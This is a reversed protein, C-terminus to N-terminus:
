KELPKVAILLTQDYKVVWVNKDPFTTRARKYDTPNYPAILKYQDNTKIMEIEFGVLRAMEAKANEFVSYAGFQIFRGSVLRNSATYRTRDLETYDVTTTWKLRHDDVPNIVYCKLKLVKKGQLKVFEYSQVAMSDYKEMYSITSGTLSKTDTEFKFNFKVGEAIKQGQVDLLSLREYPQAAAQFFNLAFFSTLLLWKLSM